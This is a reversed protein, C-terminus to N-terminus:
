TDASGFCHLSSNITCFPLLPAPKGWIKPRLRESRIALGPMTGRCSLAAVAQSLRYSYALPLCPHRSPISRDVDQLAM